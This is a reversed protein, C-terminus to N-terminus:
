SPHSPEAVRRETRRSFGLDAYAGYASWSCRIGIDFMEMEVVV